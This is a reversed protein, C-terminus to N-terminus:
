RSLTTEVKFNHRWIRLTKVVNSGCRWIRLMTDVNALLQITFEVWLMDNIKYHGSQYLTPVAVDFGCRRRSTTIVNNYVHQTLKAFFAFYLCIITLHYCKRLREEIAKSFNLSMIFSLNFDQLSFSKLFLKGAKSKKLM